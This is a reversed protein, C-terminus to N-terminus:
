LCVKGLEGLYRLARSRPLTLCAAWRMNLRTLPLTLYEALVQSVTTPCAEPWMLDARANYNDPEKIALLAAERVSVLLGEAM